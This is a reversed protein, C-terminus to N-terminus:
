QVARGGPATPERGVERKAVGEDVGVIERRLQRLVPIIRRRFERIQHPHLGEFLVLVDCDNEVAETKKRTM